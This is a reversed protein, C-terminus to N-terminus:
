GTGLRLIQHGVTNSCIITVNMITPCRSLFNGVRKWVEGNVIYCFSSCMFSLSLSMLSM